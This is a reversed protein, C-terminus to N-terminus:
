LIERSTRGARNKAPRRLTRTREVEIWYVNGNEDLVGFVDTGTQRQVSPMSVNRMPVGANVPRPPRVDNRVRIPQAATNEVFGTPHDNPTLAPRPIALALVAAAVAGSLLLWHRRVFQPRTATVTSPIATPDFSAHRDGLVDELVDGVTADLARYEEWLRHAQPNRLLERSLELQEDETIEGDLQRVILREIKPDLPNM